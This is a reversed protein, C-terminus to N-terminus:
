AILRASACRWFSAATHLARRTEGAIVFLVVPVIATIGFAIALMSTAAFLVVDRASARRDNGPVHLEHQLVDLPRDLITDVDGREYLNASGRGRVFARFTELPQAILGTFFGFLAIVWAYPLRGWGSGLEWASIAAEGRWSTAYGTVLHHLDHVRLAQARARLNPVRYAFPGFQADAWEQEYGGDPEFGNEAFFRARARRVTIAPM